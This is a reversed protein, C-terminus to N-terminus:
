QHNLLSWYWQPSVKHSYKKLTLVQTLQPELASLDLDWAPLQVKYHRLKLTISTHSAHFHRLSLIAGSGQFRSLGRWAMLLHYLRRSLVLELTSLFQFKTGQSRSGSSPRPFAVLSPAAWNWQLRWYWWTLATTLLLQPTPRFPAAQGHIASNSLHHQRYVKRARFNVLSLRSM